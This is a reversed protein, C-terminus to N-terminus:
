NRKTAPSRQTAPRVGTRLPQAARPDHVVDCPFKDVLSSENNNSRYSGLYSSWEEKIRKIRKIREGELRCLQSTVVGCTELVTIWEEPTCALLFDEKRNKRLPARFGEYQDVSAVMVNLVELDLCLPVPGVVDNDGVTRAFGRCEASGFSVKVARDCTGGGGGGGSRVGSRYAEETRSAWFAGCCFHTARERRKCKQWISGSRWYRIPSMWMQGLCIIGTAGKGFWLSAKSKSNWKSSRMSLKGNNWIDSAAVPTTVDITIQWRRTKSSITCASVQSYEVGAIPASPIVSREGFLSVPVTTSDASIPLRIFGIRASLVLWYGAGHTPNSQRALNGLIM